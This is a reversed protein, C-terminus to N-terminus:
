YFNRQEKTGKNRQEMTTGKNRQEQTTGKNGHQWKTKKNRHQGKTGKNRHQGKTGKYLFPQTIKKKDPSNPHCLPLPPLAFASMPQCLPPLPNQSSIIDSVFINLIWRLMKIIKTLNQTNKKCFQWQWQIYQCFNRCFQLHQFYYLTSLTQTYLKYLKYFQYM